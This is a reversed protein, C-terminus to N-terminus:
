VRDYDLRDTLLLRHIPAFWHSELLIVSGSSM